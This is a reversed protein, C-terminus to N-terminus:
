ECHFLYTEKLMHEQKDDRHIHLIFAVNFCFLFFLTLTNIEVKEAISMEGLLTTMEWNRLKSKTALVAYEAFVVVLAAPM